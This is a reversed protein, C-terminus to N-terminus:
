ASHTKANRSPVREPPAAANFRRGRKAPYGHKRWWRLRRHTMWGLRRKQALEGAARCEWALAAGD